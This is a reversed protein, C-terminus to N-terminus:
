TGYACVGMRPSNVVPLYVEEEACPHQQAHEACFLTPGGDICLPCVVTAPQTCAECSWRPPDNRALLRVPTRGLSGQRSSLVQGRLTTTSGFDYEYTFQQGRRGLAVGIRSRMASEQRGLRFASMHGCCELWVRRLLSDLQQLTAEGRAEVFLWYRPDAVGDIRLQVVSTASGSADHSAACSAIHRTMPLKFAQRKCLECTGTNSRALSGEPTGDLPSCKLQPLTRRLRAIWCILYEARSRRASAGPLQLHPNHLGSRSSSTSAALAARLLRGCIGGATAATFGDPTTTYAIPALPKTSDM